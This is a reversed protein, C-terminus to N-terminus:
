YTYRMTLTYRPGSSFWARGMYGIHQQQTQKYVKDTLNSGELGVMLNDTFKYFLSADVTGYAEAWTPLGWGVNHQGFTPSDPNTDTGDNGETGNAHVAQLYRGRWSYAVRASVPGKDFLLSLNYANKSLNLMPLNGFTRGDTDCGNTNLNFNTSGLGGSCYPSFTPNYLEQKSDIYTYNASIGFGSLWGPLKDFYTQMAVEIGRVTGKAANNPATVIFNHPNGDVDHLTKIYSTKMIIDKLRKNFLAVTLSSGREPYWEATLDVNDAQVPKLMPNGDSTGTYSVPSRLVPPGNQPRDITATQSLTTYAQLQSFDPRSIAKAYAFRFQLKDSVSMKLNLSPLANTYSHQFGQPEAVPAIVPVEPPLPGALPTFVTYGGAVNRTHVLRLGASGEVPFKLDDFGFRLSTYAAQTRERQQNTGAPDTGFTAAQWPACSGWGQAAVQEACLIDHFQHLQAYTDPFGRATDFSPVVLAPPVPARGNFFNDFRRLTTPGAFRPDGLMALGSINWGVQWPQTIAAWNYGPVSNITTAERDTLRLGFRLDRLVPDEFTFKADGRWAKQNAKSKDMHEMTFAWYYNDPNAFYAIDSEDFTLTPPSTTVDLGMKPAQLGTAVTSDIAETNARIYQLDTKFTWRDNAKWTLNWALEETKSNRNSFRTDDNFNLGGRSDDRLTGRQYVGNADYVADVPTTTYPDVGTFIANEDWYMQYKSQFYTLSSELADKKWQLAGYVGTREREFNLTRWSASKPVWLTSGPQLDTRPYFADLQFADTRAASESYALDILAGFRGLDTDWRNSLLGSVAPKNTKGLRAHSTQLSFAGRPGQYDFPMATRLNILGSVAGEIQEASPNKYVEVASMLEPPVDEFSLSRGGNASFSDRGNLESRVYSLGRVTVGSGEVSFHEPDNKAMTRDIQVGVIRQLVETVSRDPLKGIDDAVIADVVEEADKKIAQASELAKRQGSIVITQPAKEDKEKEDKKKEDKTKEGVPASAAAAPPKPADQALAVGSWVLVVQAAAVSLATKKFHRRM